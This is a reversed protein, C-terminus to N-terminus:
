ETIVFNYLMYNIDQEYLQYSEEDAATFYFEYVDDDSICFILDTKGETESDLSQVTIWYGKLGNITANQYSVFGDSLRASLSSAVDDLASDESNITFLSIDEKLIKLQAAPKNDDTKDDTSFVANYTTSGFTEDVSVNKEVNWGSDYNMKYGTEKDKFVKESSCGVASFATCLLTCILILKAKM